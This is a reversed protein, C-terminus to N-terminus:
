KKTSQFAAFAEIEAVALQIAQNIHYSLPKEDTAVKIKCRNMPILIKTAGSQCIANVITPTFEGQMSNPILIGVAGVIVDATQIHNVATTEATTTHGEHAGALLMQETAYPNTGLATLMINLTSLKAVVSKGIGGGMGDIVIVKPKITM